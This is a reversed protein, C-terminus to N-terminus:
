SLSSFILGLFFPAFSLLDIINMGKHIFKRKDSSLLFRYMYEVAFICSVVGDIMLFEFYYERAYQGVTELMIAAVAIFVCVQIFLNTLKGITSQPDDLINEYKDRDYFPTHKFIQKELLRQFM